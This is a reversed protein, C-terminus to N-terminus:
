RTSFLETANPGQTEAGFKDSLSALRLFKAKGKEPLLQFENETPIVPEM